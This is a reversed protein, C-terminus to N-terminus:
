PPLGSTGTIRIVPSVAFRLMIREHDLKLRRIRPSMSSRCNSPGAPEGAATEISLRGGDIGYGVQDGGSVNTARQPQGMGRALACIFQLVHAGEWVAQGM